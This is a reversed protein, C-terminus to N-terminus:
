GGCATAGPCPRGAASIPLHRLPMGSAAGAIPSAPPARGAARRQRHAAIRRICVSPIAWRSAPMNARALCARSWAIPGAEGLRDLRPRHLADWAGADQGDRRRRCGTMGAGDGWAQSAMAWPHGSTLVFIIGTLAARDPVRPHSPLIPTAVSGWMENSVLRKSQGM